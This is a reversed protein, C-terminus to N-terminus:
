ELFRNRLEAAEARPSSAPDPGSTSVVYTEGSFPALRTALQHARRRAAPANDFLIARVPIDALALIQAPSFGVGATAVFGYGGWLVDFQGETVVCAHRVHEIGFLCDGRPVASQTRAAGRYRQGHPVDGIARTTWSVQIGAANQIPIYIRWSLAGLNPGLAQLNWRAVLEDADFGRGALYRKHAPLLPGLGAPRELKGVPLPDTRAASPLGDLLARVVGVPRDSAEALASALSM